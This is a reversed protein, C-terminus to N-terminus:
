TELSEYEIVEMDENDEEEKIVLENTKTETVRVTKTPVSVLVDDWSVYKKIAMEGKHFNLNEIESFLSDPLFTQNGVYYIM